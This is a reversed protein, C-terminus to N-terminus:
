LVHWCVIIKINIIANRIPFLKKSLLLILIIEKYTISSPLKIKM